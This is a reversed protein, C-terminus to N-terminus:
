EVLVMLHSIYVSLWSFPLFGPMVMLLLVASTITMGVLISHLYVWCSKGSFFSCIAMVAAMSGRYTEGAKVGCPNVNAPVAQRFTKRRGGGGKEM